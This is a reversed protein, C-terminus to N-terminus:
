PFTHHFFFNLLVVKNVSKRMKVLWKRRLTQPAPRNCSSVYCVDGVGIITPATTSPGPGVRKRYSACNARRDVHRYCADCLCSDVTLKEEDSISYFVHTMRFMFHFAGTLLAVADGFKSDLIKKQRDASKIQAIHCPTDFLGFKGGCYFCQDQCIRDPHIAFSSAKEPIVLSTTAEKNASTDILSDGLSEQLGM